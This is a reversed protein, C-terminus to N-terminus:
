VLALIISAGSLYWPVQLSRNKEVPWCGLTGVPFIMLIVMDDNKSSVGQGPETTLALLPTDENTAVFKTSFFTKCRLFSESWM